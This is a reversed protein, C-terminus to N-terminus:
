DTFASSGIKWTGAYAQLALSVGVGEIVSFAKAGDDDFRVFWLSGSGFVAEAVL